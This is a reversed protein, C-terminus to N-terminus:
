DDLVMTFEIKNPNEEELKPLKFGFESAVRIAAAVFNNWSLNGTYVQARRYEEIDLQPYFYIGGHKKTIVTLNQATRYKNHMLKIIPNIYDEIIKRMEGDALARQQEQEAIAEKRDLSLEEKLTM